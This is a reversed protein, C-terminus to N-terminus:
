WNTNLPFFFTDQSDIVLDTGEEWEKYLSNIGWICSKFYSELQNSSVFIISCRYKKPAGQKNWGLQHSPMEHGVYSVRDREGQKCAVWLLSLRSAAFWNFQTDAWSTFKVFSLSNELRFFWSSAIQTGPFVQGKTRNCVMLTIYEPYQESKRLMGTMAQWLWLEMHMLVRQKPPFLSADWKGIFSSM